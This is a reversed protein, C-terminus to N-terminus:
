PLDQRSNSYVAFTKTWQRVDLSFNVSVGTQVSNSTVSESELVHACLNRTGDLSVISKVVDDQDTTFPVPSTAAMYPSLVFWIKSHYLIIDIADNYDSGSKVRFRHGQLIYGRAKVFAAGLSSFSVSLWRPDYSREKGSVTKLGLPVGTSMELRLFGSDGGLVHKQCHWKPPPKIYKSTYLNIHQMTDQLVIQPNTDQAFTSRFIRCGNDLITKLNANNAANNSIQEPYSNTSTALFQYAQPTESLVYGGATGDFVLNQTSGDYHFYRVTRRGGPTLRNWSTKELLLHSLVRSGSHFKATYMQSIFVTSSGDSGRIKVKAESYDLIDNIASNHITYSPSAAGYTTVVASWDRVHWSAPKVLECREGIFDLPCQCTGFQLRGGNLCVYDLLLVHCSLSTDLNVPMQRSTVNGLVPSLLTCM